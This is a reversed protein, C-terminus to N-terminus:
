QGHERGKIKGTRWMREEEKLQEKLEKSMEKDAISELDPKGANVWATYWLCGISYIAGRMRREVMNKMMGLHLLLWYFIEM